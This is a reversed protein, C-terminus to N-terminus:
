LLPQIYHTHMAHVGDATLAMDNEESNGYYTTEPVYNKADTIIGKFTWRYGDESHWAVLSRATETKSWPVSPSDAFCLVTASLFSGDELVTSAVPMFFSRNHGMCSRNHYTDIMARPLGTYSSGNQPTALLEGSASESYEVTNASSLAFEFDRPFDHPFDHPLVATGNPGNHLAGSLRLTRAPRRGHGTLTQESSTWWWEAALLNSHHWSRGSDNSVIYPRQGAGGYYNYQGFLFTDSLAFFTDTFSENGDLVPLGSGNQYPGYGNATSNWAGHLIVPALFQLSVGAAAAGNTKLTPGASIIVQQAEPPFDAKTPVVVNDYIDASTKASVQSHNCSADIWNHHVSINRGSNILLWWMSPSDAMVNHHDDFGASEQDHYLMGFHRCQHHLYNYSRSSGPQAGLSYLAGGDVLQEDPDLGAAAGCMVHHIHNGIITNNASYSADGWGWGNSIGTYSTNAIENHSIRTDASWGILVAASGHYEMALNTLTSNELLNGATWRSRDPQGADTIGGIM